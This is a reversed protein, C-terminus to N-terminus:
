LQVRLHVLTLCVCGGHVVLVIFVLYTVLGHRLSTDEALFIPSECIPCKMIRVLERISFMTLVRSGMLECDRESEPEIIEGTPSLAPSSFCLKKSSATELPTPSCLHFYIGQTLLPSCASCHLIMIGHIVARILHKQVVM